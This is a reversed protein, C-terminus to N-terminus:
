DLSCAKASAEVVPSFARGSDTKGTVSAVLLEARGYTVHLLFPQVSALIHTSMCYYLEITIFSAKPSTWRGRRVAFEFM